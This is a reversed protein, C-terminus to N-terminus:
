AVYNSVVLVVVFAAAPAPAAAAAAGGDIGNGDAVVINVDNRRTTMMPGHQGMELAM